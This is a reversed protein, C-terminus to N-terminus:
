DEECIKLVSSIIKNTIDKVDKIPINLWDKLIKIDTSKRDFNLLFKYNKSTEKVIHFNINGDEWLLSRRTENQVIELRNDSINNDLPLELLQLFDETPDDLEYRVNFGAASVPTKPLADIANRCYEMSKELSEWDKKECDIVLQQFNVSVLFGEILVKPPGMADLPVLVEIPADDAKKFIQEAIGKPTLIAPNWKGVIITNWVTPILKSM